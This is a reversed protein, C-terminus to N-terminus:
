DNIIIHLTMGYMGGLQFNVLLPISFSISDFPSTVLVLVKSLSDVVSIYMDVHVFLLEGLVVDHLIAYVVEFDWRSYDTVEHCLGSAM